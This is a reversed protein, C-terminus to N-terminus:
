QQVEHILSKRISLFASAGISWVDAEQTYSGKLVEQLDLRVTIRVPCVKTHSEVDVVLLWATARCALCDVCVVRNEV